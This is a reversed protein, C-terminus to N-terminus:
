AGPGDAADLEEGSLDSSDEDLPTGKSALAGGGAGEAADLEEGSQGEDSAEEVPVLGVSRGRDRLFDGPSLMFGSKSLREDLGRSFAEEGEASMQKLTSLDKASLEYGERRAVGEPDALLDRRFSPDSVAQGFLDSLTKKAM